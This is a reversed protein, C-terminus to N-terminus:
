YVSSIFDSKSRPPTTTQTASRLTMHPSTDHYDMNIDDTDDLPDYDVQPNPAFPSAIITPLAIIDMNTDEIHRNKKERRNKEYQQRRQRLPPPRDTSTTTHTKVHRKNRKAKKKRGRNSKSM